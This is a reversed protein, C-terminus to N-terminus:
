WSTGWTLQLKYDVTLARHYVAQQWSGRKDNQWWVVKNSYLAVDAPTM